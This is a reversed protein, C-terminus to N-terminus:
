NVSFEKQVEKLGKERIMEAFEDKVFFV